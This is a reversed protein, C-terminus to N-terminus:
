KQYFEEVIQVASECLESLGASTFGGDVIFTLQGRVTDVAAVCAVGEPAQGRYTVLGPVVDSASSSIVLGPESELRDRTVSSTLIGYGKTVDRGVLGCGGGGTRLHQKGEMTEFGVAAFEEASIEKCPDFLNDKIAEYDFDGLPLDGSAFHFAPADSDISENPDNSEHAKDAAEITAMPEALEATNNTEYSVLSCGTLTTVLMVGTIFSFSRHKM